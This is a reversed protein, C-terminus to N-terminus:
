RGLRYHLKFSLLYHRDFNTAFYPELSLASLGTGTPLRLTASVFGM